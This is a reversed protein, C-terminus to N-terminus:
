QEGGEPFAATLRALRATAAHFRSLADIAASRTEALTREADILDLQSFKGERYGIRAIRVAESAAALAPGTATRAAAEADAVDVEGEAIAQEARLEAARLRAAAGDREARAQRAAAGGGNFIQLPISIGVVPGLADTEGLQRIGARLTVDAVREADAVAVAAGAIDLAARARALALTDAASAPARPGAPILADFWDDALPGSAPRGILRELQARALGARRAATGTAAEANALVVGAREIELPSAAGARVRANAAGATQRAVRLTERANEEARGAGIMEVYALTVALRLDAAAEAAALRASHGQATALAVRARRKGGREIPLEIGITAEVTDSHTFNAVDAFASPNPRLRAADLAAESARIAADVAEVDPSFHRALDQAADLTLPTSAADPADAPAAQQAQVGHPTLAAAMLAAVLFRM